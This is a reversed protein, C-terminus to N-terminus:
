LKERYYWFVYFISLLIVICVLFIQYIDSFILIPFLDSFYVFFCQNVFLCQTINIHKKHSPVISNFKGIVVTWYNTFSFSFCSFSFFWFVMFVMLFSSFFCFDTFSCISLYFNRDFFFFFFSFLFFKYIFRFVTFFFFLSKFFIKKDHEMM